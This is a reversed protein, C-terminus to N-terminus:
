KRIPPSLIAMLSSLSSSSPFLSFSATRLSEDLDKSMKAISKRKIIVIRKIEPYKWVTIVVTKECLAIFSRLCSTNAWRWRMGVWYKSLFGTPLSTVRTVFSMRAMSSISALPTIVM